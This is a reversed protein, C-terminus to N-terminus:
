LGGLRGGEEFERGGEAALPGVWGGWEGACGEACVGDLVGDGSGVEARGGERPLRGVEARGLPVPREERGVLAAGLGSDAVGGAMTGAVADVGAASGTGKSAGVGVGARVEGM